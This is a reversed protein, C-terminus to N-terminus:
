WPAGDIRWLPWAVWKTNQQVARQCVQGSNQMELAAVDRADLRRPIDLSTTAHLPLASLAREVVALAIASVDSQDTRESSTLDSDGIVFRADGGAREQMDVGGRRMVDGLPGPPAPHPNLTVRSLLEYQIPSVPLAQGNNGEITLSSATLFRPPGSRPPLSQHPVMRSANCTSIHPAKSPVLLNPVALRSSRLASGDVDAINIPGDDPYKPALLYKFPDRSNAMGRLRGSRQVSQPIGGVRSRPRDGGTSVPSNRESLSSM